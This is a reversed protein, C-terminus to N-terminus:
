DYKGIYEREFFNRTKNKLSRSYKKPQTKENEAPLFLGHETWTQKSSRMKEVPM